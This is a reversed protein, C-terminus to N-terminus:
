LNIRIGFNISRPNLYYLWELNPNNIYSKSDIRKQNRSEIEPDNTPNAELPDYPVNGPRLDGIKDDGFVNYGLPEGIERPWLLSDYYDRADNGDVFSYSTFNKNNFLNNIDMFFELQRGAIRINKSLKMNTNYYDPWQVNYIIGPISVGRTWTAYSGEKWSTVISLQWEGLLDFDGLINPGFDKPTQFILNARFYPRPLPKEQYINTRDYDRQEAPNEYYFLKGFYGSTEVMYTYNLFGTIFRGYSRKLSIEFGRIDEYFNDEAKYYNVKRDASIYKVWYSSNDPLNNSVDKYYAALRLLFQNFLNHEYGLEYAVTKSLTNNPDGIRSVTGETVRQVNYLSQAEPMSRFHGYNFYLKSNTTIPHSIGLRPSVYFLHEADKKEFDEDTAGKTKFDASYFAKDYIDVDYWELGAYSYDLRLGINAILGKFEFKDQLFAGARIPTVDWVSWPRGSPLTKEVAGYKINHQNIILELGTKVQNSENLQSTLDFKITNTYIKSSDRSNSMGVGMRLGDIGSSPYPWYGYPAEDLFYSEGFKTIKTTDRLATPNTDYINGVRELSIEYFTKSSVTNTLKASFMHRDITTPCWYDNGYMIATIYSRSSLEAALEYPYRHIGPLGVNNDSVALVQGYLGSLTLKLSPSIQSTLKLQTMHDNYTERNLPILYAEQEQRHSLFFRLNGLRDNLFPVPGGLGADIVYDPRKIDGQKRHQYEYVRKAAEPTLDNTPDDDELTRQSVANWGEFSPYERQMYTDWAGNNTGTWCVEDDLFPRNWYSNPDFGSPGFHKKGPPRYRATMTFSYRNSEGEKTVVNIIGSRINGYEANFGGTQVQVDQISSLSVNTIPMNNREDRLTLGDVMFATEDEGGGRINIGEIGAELGVVEQVSEVPLANIQSSEINALSASVDQQVIPREAVITVEEGALVESSLKFELNTTLDISVRVNSITVAAYGVVNARITYAGPPVNLIAFYGDLNTAAGMMTGEIIVNAGPLPGGNDADYVYGAIKGTTASFLLSTITFIYLCFFLLRKHM